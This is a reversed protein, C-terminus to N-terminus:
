LKLLKKFVQPKKYPGIVAFNLKEQRIISRAVARIEQSRVSRIRDILREAPLINKTLIEQEGYYGALEDSTEMSLILNGVLHDKSRQLEDAPVLEDKLRSLEQLVIKVVLEIKQHDVGASVALSGHDLYLDASANVYYAAGLEERVRKFLRSSMGGGLMDSLVQLAYRRKDFINFASVGLVLHSQDSAKFKALTRPSRQTEVTRPKTAASKRKLGGFYGRIKPLVDKERFAGAIVVVTKPALYRKGRYALFDERRLKKIVGKEGGVTWGAPQDGYMLTTFLEQVRRMPMDEYMNIEEIIVGREKEIEERNFVPNLYLDSVIDLIKSLKHNEAKAWYGTYEQSTFANFQAGLASLEEAIQGVRPRTTTGKFVMHELFHSIGNIKKTEYESGAEVLILVTVALSQPQPALLVRLGNKLTIKKFATRRTSKEM